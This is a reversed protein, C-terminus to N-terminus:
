PSKKPEEVKWITEIMRYGVPDYNRLEARDVPAYNCRAFYICSLEAFYELHNTTAYGDRKPGDDHKVGRYLGREKALDYARLIDPQRDPFNHLHHAHGFEHVIAKLSWLNSIRAYNEACYIVISDSWRPDLEKHHDPQGKRVYDLGNDKGGERAKPGYMLYFPLRALSARTHKPLADLARAINKDLRDLASRAIDPAEEQLQAEVMVTRSGRQVVKYNRRPERFNLSAPGDGAPLRPGLTLAGAM